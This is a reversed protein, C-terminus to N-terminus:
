EFLYGQGDTGLLMHTDQRALLIHETESSVIANWKVVIQGM